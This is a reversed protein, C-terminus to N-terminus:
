PVDYVVEISYFLDTNAASEVGVTYRDNAAVTPPAGPTITVTAVAGTGADATTALTVPAVSNVVKYLKFNAADALVRICRVKIAKIRWGVQLGNLHRYVDGAANCETADGFAGSQVFTGATVYDPQFSYTVSREKTHKIEKNGLWLDETLPTASDNFSIDGANDIQLVSRNAAPITAPLTLVVDAAGGYDIRARKAGAAGNAVDFGRAKVYGLATGAYDDWFDYRQSADVFRVSAPNVGGYDGGIGGVSAANIVGGSTVQVAGAATVLYWENGYYRILGPTNAVADTHNQFQIGYVNTISKGNLDIDSGSDLASFPVPSSVRTILEDMCLIWNAWDTSGIVPAAYPFTDGISGM